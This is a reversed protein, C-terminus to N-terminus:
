SRTINHRRLEFLDCEKSTRNWSRVESQFVIKGCAKIDLKNPALRLIRLGTWPDGSSNELKFIKLKITKKDVYDNVRVVRLLYHQPSLQFGAIKLFYIIHRYWVLLHRAEVHKQNLIPPYSRTNVSFINSKLIFITLLQTFRTDYRVMCSGFNWM